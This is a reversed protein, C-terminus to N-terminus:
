PMSALQVIFPFQAALKNFLADDSTVLECGEQEALAVYLCDYIGVQHASSIQVARVVPVNVFLPPTAMVDNWLNEAEGIKIRRQREARTLAHGVELEFVQPSILEHINILFDDRLTEAKESDIESLAWKVAVCSDLVYKM